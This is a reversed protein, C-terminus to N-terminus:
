FHFPWLHAPQRRRVNLHASSEIIAIICNEPSHNENEIPTNCQFKSNFASGNKITICHGAADDTSHETGRPQHKTTVSVNRNMFKAKALRKTFEQVIDTTHNTMIALPRKAEM